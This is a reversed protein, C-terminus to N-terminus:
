LRLASTAIACIVADKKEEVDVGAVEDRLVVAVVDEVQVVM